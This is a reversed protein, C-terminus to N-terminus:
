AAGRVTTLANGLEHYARGCLLLFVILRPSSICPALVSLEPAGHTVFRGDPPASTVALGDASRGASREHRVRRGQQGADCLDADWRWGHEDARCGAGPRHARQAP